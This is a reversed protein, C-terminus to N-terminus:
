VMPFTTAHGELCEFCAKCYNSVGIARAQKLFYIDEMARWQDRIAECNGCGALPSWHVLLLDVYDVKLLALNVKADLLTSKYNDVGAGGGPVKTTIFIERREYKGIEDRIAEAVGSQDFYILATDVARFGADLAAELNTRTQNVSDGTGLSVLPLHVGNSLRATRNEVRPPAAAAATALALLLLSLITTMSTDCRRLWAPAGTTEKLRQRPVAAARNIPHDVFYPQHM